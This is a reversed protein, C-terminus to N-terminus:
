GASGSTPGDTSLVDNDNILAKGLQQAFAPDQQAREILPGLLEGFNGVFEEVVASVLKREESNRAKGLAARYNPSSRLMKIFDQRSRM